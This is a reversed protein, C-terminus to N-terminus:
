ITVVFRGGEGGLHLKDWKVVKQTSQEEFDGCMDGIESAFLRLIWLL